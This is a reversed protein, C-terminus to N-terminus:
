SKQPNGAPSAIEYNSALIAEFWGAPIVRKLLAAMRQGTRGVTYVPGLKRARVLKLCLEGLLEPSAGKLEDREVIALTRAMQESYAGSEASAACRRSATFGTAFDGPEIVTADLSTGRLELRLADVLARTAFKTACYHSQFPLAIEGGISGMVIIRGNGQARMVPLVARLMRVTGFYNTEFQARAEDLATDEVSGFLGFGANNVLVDIRGAEAMVLAVGADVSECANVDMQLMRVGDRDPDNDLGTGFVRYGAVALKDAMQRGFGSSAGTVLVVKDSHAM